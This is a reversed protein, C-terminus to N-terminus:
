SSCSLFHDLYNSSIVDNDIEQVITEDLLKEEDQWYALVSQINCIPSQLLPKHCIHELKVGKETELNQISQQLKLLPKLFHTKNFVPGFSRNHNTTDTYSFQFTIYNQETEAFM